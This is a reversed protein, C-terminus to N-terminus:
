RTHTSMIAQMQSALDEPLKLTFYTKYCINGKEVEVFAVRKSFQAIGYNCKRMRRKSVLECKIREKFM